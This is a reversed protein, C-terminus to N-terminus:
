ENNHEKLTSKEDEYPKFNELVNYDKELMLM